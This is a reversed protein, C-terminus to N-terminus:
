SEEGYAFSLLTLDDMRTAFSRLRSISTKVSECSLPFSLPFIINRWYHNQVLLFRVQGALANVYRVYISTGLCAEVVFHEEYLIEQWMSRCAALLCTVFQDGQPSRV